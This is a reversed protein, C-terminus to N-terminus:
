AVYTAISLACCKQKDKHQARIETNRTKCCAKSDDGQFPVMWTVLEPNTMGEQLIKQIKGVEAHRQSFGAVAQLEAKNACSCHM